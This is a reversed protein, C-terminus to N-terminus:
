GFYRWIMEIIFMFSLLCLTLITTIVFKKLKSLKNNFINFKNEINSNVFNGSTYLNGNLNFDGTMDTNGTIYISTSDTDQQYFSFSSMSGGIVRMHASSDSPYPLMSYDFLEFEEVLTKDSAPKPPPPKVGLYISYRDM